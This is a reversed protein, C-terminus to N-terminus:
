NCISISVRGMFFSIVEAMCPLYDGFHVPNIKSSIGLCIYLRIRFQGCRPLIIDGPLACSRRQVGPIWFFLIKCRNLLPIMFLAPAADSLFRQRPLIPAVDFGPVPAGPRPPAHPGAALRASPPDIYWRPPRQADAESPNELALARATEPM